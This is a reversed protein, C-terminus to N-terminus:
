ASNRGGSTSYFTCVFVACVDGDKGEINFAKRSVFHQFEREKQAFSGKEKCRWASEGPVREIAGDGGCTPVKKPFRYRKEKGTRLETLVSVIEPIVDGAKRLIVTDGVRVDLRRIQDENHLTARSVTSGAVVVPSLVAVPTLVGTRGVQLVIDEVHTTVEEAPFKYAIAFRPAHSTYGLVEQLPVSDVKLVMGDVEYVFDERMRILTEYTKQASAIDTMVVEEKHVPFGLEELLRLEGSQTDPAKQHMTADAVYDIDYIFAHLNRSATVAVDLQRLSGASANRCNAFPTEGSAEREKNIRALEKKPLWAEGVVSIDVPRSLTEPIGAIVRVGETIDEGVVGDGRTAGQVLEGNKYTLVIKLGDIKPECCLAISEDEVGEKKLMRRVKAVWETLEAENFINDFSWQPYEHTVKQFQRKVAGGVTKSPSAEDAYEPHTTELERLERVLADYAEDSIEPADNEYYLKGHYAVLARLQMIRQQARTEKKSKNSMSMNYM